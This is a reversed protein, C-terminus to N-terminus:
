RIVRRILPHTASDSIHIASNRVKKFLGSVQPAIIVV